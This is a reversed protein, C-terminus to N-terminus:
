SGSTARKILNHVRTDHMQSVTNSIMFDTVGDNELRKFDELISDETGYLVSEIERPVQKMSDWAEKAAEDTDGLVISVKICKRFWYKALQEKNLRFDALLLMNMDGYNATNTFTDIHSGTIVILPKPMGTFSYSSFKTLFDPILARRQDLFTNEQLFLNNNEDNFTGAVMNLMLRDGYLKAFSDSMMKAYAPTLAYPRLAVMCKLNKTKSAIYSAVIFPDGSHVQFQCLVSDYGSNELFGITTDLVGDDLETRLSWHFKAM